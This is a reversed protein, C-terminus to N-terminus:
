NEQNSSNRDMMYSVLTFVFGIGVIGFLTLMLPDESTVYLGALVILIIARVILTTSYLQYLRLRIIQAILIGLSLLLLGVLRVMSDDYTGNSLFLDLGIQPAALFGVGGGILYSALYYLSLRTKTM